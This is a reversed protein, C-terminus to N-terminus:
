IILVRLSCTLDRDSAYTDVNSSDITGDLAFM